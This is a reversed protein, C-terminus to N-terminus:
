YKVHILVKLVKGPYQFKADSFSPPAMFPRTDNSAGWGETPIGLFGQDLTHNSNEDHYVVIAYAGPPYSEFRCTAKRHEPKPFDYQLAKPADGPFGKDTNWLACGVLGKDNRLGVVQALIADEAKPPDAPAGSGGADTGAAATAAGGAPAVATPAAPDPAAAAPATASAPPAAAAPLAGGDALVLTLTLITSAFLM